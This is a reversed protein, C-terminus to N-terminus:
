VSDNAMAYSYLIQRNWLSRRVSVVISFAELVIILYAFDFLFGPQCFFNIMCNEYIFIISIMSKWVIEYLLLTHIFIAFYANKKEYIFQIILMKEM